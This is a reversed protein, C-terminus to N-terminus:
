YRNMWWTVSEDNDKNDVGPFNILGSMISQDFGIDSQHEIKDIKENISIIEDLLSDIQRVKYIFSKTDSDCLSIKGLIFELENKKNQLLLIRQSRKM